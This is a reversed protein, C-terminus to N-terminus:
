VTGFNVSFPMQPIKFFLDCPLLNWSTSIISGQIIRSKVFNTQGIKAVVFQPGKQLEFESQVLAVPKAHQLLLKVCHFVHGLCKFQSHGFM